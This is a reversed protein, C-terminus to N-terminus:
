TTEVSFIAADFTMTPSSGIPKTQLQLTQGVELWVPISSFLTDKDGSTKFFKQVQGTTTPAAGDVSVGFAVTTNNSGSSATLQASVEYYGADKVTFEADAAVAELGEEVRVTDIFDLKEWVGDTLIMTDGTSSSHMSGVNKKSLEAILHKLRLLERFLYVRLADEGEPPRGPNYNIFSM